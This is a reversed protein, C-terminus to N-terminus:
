SSCSAIAYAGTATVTKVVHGDVKISCTVRGSGTNQAMVQYVDLQNDNIVLTKTWPVRAGEAQEITMAGDTTYTLDAHRASGGVAYVVTHVSTDGDAVPDGLPRVTFQPDPGAKASVVVWKAALGADLGTVYNGWPDVQVTNDDIAEPIDSWKKGVYSQLSAQSLDPQQDDATRSDLDDEGDADTVHVLPEESVTVLPAAASAQDAATTQVTPAVAGTEGSCGSVGVAVGAALLLGTAGRRWRNRRISALQVSQQPADSRNM